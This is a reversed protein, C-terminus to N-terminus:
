YQSAGWNIRWSGDPFKPLSHMLDFLVREDDGPHTTNCFYSMQTWEPDPQTPSLTADLAQRAQDAFENKIEVVITQVSSGYGNSRFTM